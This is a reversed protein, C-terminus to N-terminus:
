LMELDYYLFHLTSTDKHSPNWLVCTTEWRFNKAGIKLYSHIIHLLYFDWSPLFLNHSSISFFYIIPCLHYSSSFPFACFPSWHPFNHLIWSSLLYLFSLCIVCFNNSSAELFWMTKYYFQISCMYIQLVFVYM